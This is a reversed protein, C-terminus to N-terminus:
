SSGAPGRSELLDKLVGFNTEMDRRLGSTILPGALAMLGSTQLELRNTLRTSGASSEFLYTDEYPWASSITKIVLKKDPEYATCQIVSEVNRGGKFKRVDSYQTGLGLPGESIRRAELLGKQWLPSNQLDSVYAFVEEVPRNITIMKEVAVM